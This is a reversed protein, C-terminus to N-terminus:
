FKLQQLAQNNLGVLLYSVGDQKWVQASNCDGKILLGSETQPLYRFEGKGDGLLLCGYNAEMSGVKLRNASKNGFLLIDTHGDKNFDETLIETVVSFQAQVPVAKQEM